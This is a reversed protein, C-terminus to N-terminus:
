QLLLRESFLLQESRIQLLFIGKTLRPLHDNLQQNLSNLTGEARLLLQGDIGRLEMQLKDRQKISKSQLMVFGNTPNPFLHFDDTEVDAGVYRVNSYSYTGDLDVQRLRYFAARVEAVTHRYAATGNSVGQCPVEGISKFLRGDYSYQMDYSDCDIEDSTTWELVVDRTNLRSAAFHQWTVPLLTGSNGVSIQSFSTFGTLSNFVIEGTGPDTSAASTAVMSWYSDSGSDRKYLRMTTEDYALLPDSTNLHTTISAISLGSQNNGFNRVVWHQGAEFNDGNGGSPIDNLLFIVLDGDPATGSDTFDIELMNANIEVSAGGTAGVSVTSSVGASVDLTSTAFAALGEMSFSHGNTPEGTTTGSSENFQLYTELGTETGSLTLHMNSRIDAQSRAVSWIRVEDIMGDFFRNHHDIGIWVNQSSATNITNTTNASGSLTEVQGDVYLVVDGLTAGGSNDLVVAIHHWEGDDLLTTGRIYAGNIEARLQSNQVYIIWKEGSSNIGNAIIAGTNETTKIWAEYTRAAGGTIGKYSDAEAYATSGNLSLANGRNSFIEGRHGSLQVWVTDANLSSICISDQYSGKTSGAKLRAYVTVPEGQLNGGSETLSLSSGYSSGDSSIEFEATQVQLTADGMLDDGSVTFTQATSANPLIGNLGEISSASATLAASSQFYLAYDEAQGYSPDTCGTNTVGGLHTLLRIRLPTNYLPDSPTTINISWSTGANGFYFGDGSGGFDGDNEYDIFVFLYEPGVGSNSVNLTYSTNPELYIRKNLDEVYGNDELASGTSITQNNLEVSVPGYYFGEQITTTAPQCAAAVASGSYIDAFGWGNTLGTRLTSVASTMRTIQDSTFRDRCDESSYAMYNQVVTGYNSGTCSNNVATWCGISSTRRHPDTDCCLDGDTACNSNSPCATDDGQFTHYLNLYHGLEHILTENQNRSSSINYGLSGTPDYGMSNALLVIGDYRLDAPPLTAFGLTSTGGNILNVTWINIYQAPNWRSLNFLHVRASDQGMGNTEYNNVGTANIRNIGTTASGDPARTALKFRLPIDTGTNGIDGSFVDNLNDIASQIQASSINNGSGEAEGTHLVHVVVALTDNTGSRFSAAGNIAIHRQMLAEGQEIRQRYKPDKLKEQHILDTACPDNQAHITTAFFLSCFLLAFCTLSISLRM